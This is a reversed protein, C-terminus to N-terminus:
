FRFNDAINEYARQRINYIQRESYHYINELERIKVKNLHYDILIGREVPDSLISIMKHAEELQGLLKKYDKRLTDKLGETQIVYEEPKSIPDASFSKAPSFVSTIHTAMTEIEALRM